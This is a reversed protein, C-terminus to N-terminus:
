GIVIRLHSVKRGTMEAVQEPGGLADILSDLPAPPVQLREVEALLNEKLQLAAHSIQGGLARREADERIALERKNLAEQLDFEVGKELYLARRQYLEEVSPICM